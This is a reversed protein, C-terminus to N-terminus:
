AQGRGLVKGFLERYEAVMRAHSFLSVARARNFAGMRSCLDADLAFAALAEAFARPDGPACLYGGEGEVVMEPLSSCNSAVVPLGCAMAEAVALSLGERVTPALLVDMRRYLGPM